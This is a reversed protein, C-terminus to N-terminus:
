LEAHNLPKFDKIIEELNKAIILDTHELNMLESDNKEVLKDKFIEAFKYGRNRLFKIYDPLRERGMMNVNWEQIIILNKSNDLLKQAGYIADPEAGEIDMQILDIKKPFDPISDLAVADVTIETAGETMPLYSKIIHSGGSNQNNLHSAFKLQTNESYAAKEFLTTNKEAQFYLNTKLFNLINPNPEFVYVHGAPGVLKSILAEHVGVHGGLCIVKMSPKVVQKLIHKIHPEWVGSSIISGGIVRDKPDLFIQDVDQDKVLVGLFNGEFGKIINDSYEVRPAYDKIRYYKKKEVVVYKNSIIVLPLAIIVFAILKKIM